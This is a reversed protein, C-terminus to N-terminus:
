IQLNLALKEESVMEQILDELKYKPSWGMEKRAMTSDGLLFPVETPRFYAPDIEIVINGNQDIGKENVGHGSWQIERGFELFVKEVFERVTIAVGTALM